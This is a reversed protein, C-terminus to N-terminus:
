RRDLLFQAPHISIADLLEAPQLACPRRQRFRQAMPKIRLQSAASDQRRPFGSVTMALAAFCDLKASVVQVAAYHPRDDLVSERGDGRSSTRITLLAARRADRVMISWAARALQPAM